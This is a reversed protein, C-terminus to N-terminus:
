GTFSPATEVPAVPTECVGVDLILPIASAPQLDSGEELQNVVHVLINKGEQVPIPAPGLVTTDDSVLQVEVTYTAVPGDLVQQTGPALNAFAVVDNALVNVPGAASAVHRATIRGTGPQTCSVDNTFSTLVPENATGWAVVTSSGAPIDVNQDYIVAGDCNDGPAKLDIEYTGAPVDVPGATTGPEFDEALPTTSGAVCVDVTVGPIGHVLYVSADATPTGAGSSGIPLVVATAALAGVGVLALLRKM